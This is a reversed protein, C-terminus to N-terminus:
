GALRTVGIEARLRRQEDISRMALGYIGHFGLAAMFKRYEPTTVLVYEVSAGGEGTKPDHPDFDCKFGLPRKRRAIEEFDRKVRPTLFRDLAAEDKHVECYHEVTFMKLPRHGLEGPTRSRVVVRPARQPTNTCGAHDCKM